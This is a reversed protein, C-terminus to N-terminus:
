SDSFFFLLASLLSSGQKSFQQMTVQKASGSSAKGQPSPTGEPPLHPGKESAAVAGEPQGSSEEGSEDITVSSQWLTLIKSTRSGIGTTKLGVSLLKGRHSTGFSKNFAALSPSPTQDESVIERVEVLPAHETPSV